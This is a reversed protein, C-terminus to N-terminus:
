SLMRKLNEALMQFNIRTNKKKKNVRDVKDGSATRDKGRAEELPSVSKMNELLSSFKNSFYKM